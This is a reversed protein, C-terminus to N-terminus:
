EKLFRSMAVIDKKEVTVTIEGRFEKVDLVSSAFKERLKMVARNNEAMDAM